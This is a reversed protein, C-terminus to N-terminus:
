FMKVPHQFRFWLFFGYIGLIIGIFLLWWLRFDKIGHYRRKDEDPLRAYRATWIIPDVKERDPAKTFLSVIAMVAVCFCWTFLARHLYVGKMSPFITEFM